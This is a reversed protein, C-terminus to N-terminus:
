ASSGDDPVDISVLTGAGPAAAVTLRAGIQAARARMGALGYGGTDADPDVGDDPDFGVGNDSVSLRVGAPGSELCVAVADAHAHKRVNAFAEQVARLLMVESATGLRPLDAAATVTVAIGTEDALRAGQRRVADVLSGSTLATPTLAAVMARAEALNERAADDILGIHRHAAAADVDIESEVAQVLTVISAFGQALTDHIEGALRAREAAIGAARSLRAVEARSRELEDLLVSLEETRERAVVVSWGIVSGFVVGAMSIALAAPVDRGHVGQQALAMEIPVCSAAASVALAAVLRLARFVPPYVVFLVAAAASSFWLVVVFLAVVGAAFALSRVTNRRLHFPAASGCVVPLLTAWAAFLGLACFAPVPHGPFVPNLAFVLIGTLACGFVVYGTWVRYWYDPADPAHAAATASDMLRAGGM